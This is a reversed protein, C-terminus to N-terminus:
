LFFCYCATEPHLGRKRFVLCVLQDTTSRGKRFSSRMPTIIKNRELYWVLRKNIMHEMVKCVCSTLAIPRYSSPDESDKGPVPVVYSNRWTSPFNGTISIDSHQFSYLPSRFSPALCKIISKMWALQLDSSDSLADLLEDM